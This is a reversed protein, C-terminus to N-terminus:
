SESNYAAIWGALGDAIHRSADPPLADPVFWAAEDVERHDPQLMGSAHGVVVHVVNYAGMPRELLQAVKRAGSLICGTEEALERVATAVPDERRGVSGGPTVWQSSGYSQRILLVRGQDDLAVIRCGHVTPKFTRWWTSRAWYALRYLRRHLPAPILTTLDSVPM